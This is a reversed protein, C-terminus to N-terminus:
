GPLEWVKLVVYAVSKKTDPEHYRVSVSKV